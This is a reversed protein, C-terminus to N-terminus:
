WQGPAYAAKDCYVHEILLPQRKATVTALRKKVVTVLKGISICIWAVEVLSAGYVAIETQCIKQRNNFNTINPMIYDYKHTNTNIHFNNNNNNHIYHSESPKQVEHSM